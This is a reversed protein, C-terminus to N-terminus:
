SSSSPSGVEGGADDGGDEEDENGDDDEDDEECDELGFLGLDGNVGEVEGGVGGRVAGDVEGEGLEDGDSVRVAVGEGM